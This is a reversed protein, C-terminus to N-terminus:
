KSPRGAKRQAVEEGERVEFPESFDYKPFIQKQYNATHAPIIAFQRGKSDTQFPEGCLSLRDDPDVEPKYATVKMRAQIQNALSM